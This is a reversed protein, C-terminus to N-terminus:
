ILEAARRLRSATVVLGNREMAVAFEEATLAPAKKRARMDRFAALAKFEDMDLQAVIFDDPHIAEIGYPELVRAPFDKLNFTVICDAHGAIAAALVHVDGPDPLKLGLGIAQWAEDPVHWDPIAARMDDRRTALRGQLDPRRRELNRMWEDEIATTWKVACLGAVALSLLADAVGVPVARM